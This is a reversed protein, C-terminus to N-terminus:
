KRNDNNSAWRPVRNDGLHGATTRDNQGINRPV